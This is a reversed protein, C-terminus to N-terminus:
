GRLQGEGIETADGHVNGAAASRKQALGVPNAEIEIRLRSFEAIGRASTKIQFFDEVGQLEFRERFSGAAATQV